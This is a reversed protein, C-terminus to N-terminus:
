VEELSAEAKLRLQKPYCSDTRQLLLFMLIPKSRHADILEKLSECFEVNSLLLSREQGENLGM